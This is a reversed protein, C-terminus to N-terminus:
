TPEACPAPLEIAARDGLGTLRGDFESVVAAILVEVTGDAEIALCLALTFEGGVHARLSVRKAHGSLAGDGGVFFDDTLGPLRELARDVVRCLRDARLRGLRLHRREVLVLRRRPAEARRRKWQLWQRVPGRARKRTAAVVWGTARVARWRRGRGTWTGAGSGM